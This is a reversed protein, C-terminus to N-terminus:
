SKAQGAQEEAASPRLYDPVLEMASTTEGTQFLRAGVRGVGVARVEEDFWQTPDFPIGTRDFVSRDGMLVFRKELNEKKHIRADEQSDSSKPDAPWIAAQQLERKWADDAILDIEPPADLAFRGRYVQGRYASLGVLVPRASVSDENGLSAAANGFLPATAAIATLSNVALIPIELAYGLTKATTVAIRLGTFSGPGVAVSISRLSALSGLPLFDNALQDIAPALSAAAHADRALVRAAILRAGSFLAISGERGIVEIALSDPTCLPGHEDPSTPVPSLPPSDSIEQQMPQQVFKM